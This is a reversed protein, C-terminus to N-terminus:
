AEMRWENRHESKTTGRKWWDSSWWCIGFERLECGMSTEMIGRHSLCSWTSTRSAVRPRSIVVRVDDVTSKDAQSAATLDMLYKTVSNKQDTSTRDFYRYPIKANSEIARVSPRRV